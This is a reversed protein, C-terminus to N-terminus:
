RILEDPDSKSALYMKRLTCEGRRWGCTRRFEWDYILGSKGPGPESNMDAHSIDRVHEFGAERLRNIVWGPSPRCAKGTVSFQRVDNDEDHFVIFDGDHDMVTTDVFVRDTIAALKEILAKPDGLHYLIGMCLVLDVRSVPFPDTELNMLHTVARPMSTRVRHLNEPRGDIFLGEAGHDMLSQGWWGYGCALDIVKRGRLRDLHLHSKIHEIPKTYRDRFAPLEFVNRSFHADKRIDRVAHPYAEGGGNLAAVNQLSM